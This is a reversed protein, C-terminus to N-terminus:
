FRYTTVGKLSIAGTESQYAQQYLRKLALLDYRFEGTFHARCSQRQQPVFAVKVQVPNSELFAEDVLLDFHQADCASYDLTVSLVDAKIEAAVVNAASDPLQGVMRALPEGSVLRGELDGCEGAFALDALAQQAQCHNGFTKFQHGPCPTTVCQIKADVKACVPAHIFTCAGNLASVPNAELAEDCAGEHLQFAAAVKAECANPFTKHVLTPCPVSTCPQLLADAACVPEYVTDCTATAYYPEGELEGCYGNFVLVVESPAAGNAIGITKYFGLPCPESACQTSDPAVVCANKPELDVSAAQARFALTQDDLKLVLTDAASDSATLAYAPESGSAPSILVVAAECSYRGNEAASGAATFEYTARAKTAFEVFRSEVPMAQGTARPATQELYRRGVIANCLSEAEVLVSSQPPSQVQEGGCGGLLLYFTGILIQKLPKTSLM